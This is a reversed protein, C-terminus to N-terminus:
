RGLRAALRAFRSVLSANTEAHGSEGLRVIVTRTAPAVVVIQGHRGMAAIARDDLVWWANRYGLRVGAFDVVPARGAPDLSRAVFAAPAVQRDGLRGGDLMVQGLRALDRATAVFGSEYWAFGHDDASWQAPYEAGLAAWLAGTPGAAGGGTARELALGLLNPAFDNYVFGGPPAEVRPRALVTAALDSAYYVRPSDQDVWPFVADERFAIGSRMDVLAALTIAAFRPDRAALVPVHATIADGLALPAGDAIARAVLLSTITKSVSFVAAPRERAGGNGYWECAIAGDRVVVFGLAGGRALYDALDAADPDAALARAVPGCDIAERWAIPAPARAIPLARKWLYDRTSSDRHVVVRALYRADFDARVWLLGALAVTAAGIAWGLARLARTM